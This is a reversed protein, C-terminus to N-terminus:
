TRAVRWEFVLLLWALLLPVDAVWLARNNMYSVCVGGLIAGALFSLCIIGFLKTPRIAESSPRRFLAQFGSEAFRRLNGTTMTSSYAWSEVRLFTSSQLAALFSIGLVLPFDPVNKPYWGAGFLFAMEATLAALAPDPLSDRVRPFQPLQAVSVGLLFAAIPLMQRLAQRWNGAAAAVGLLVVNGTMANAFVRGHGFYTFADLFAGTMALLAAIELSDKAAAPQAHAQQEQPSPRPQASM